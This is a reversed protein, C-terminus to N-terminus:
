QISKVGNILRVMEEFEVNHDIIYLYGDDM